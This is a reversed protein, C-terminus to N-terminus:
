RRLPRRRRQRLRRCSIMKPLLAAPPAPAPAPLAGVLEDREGELVAIQHQVERAEDFKFASMALDHRAALGILEREVAALRLRKAELEAPPIEGAPLSFGNQAGMIARYVDFIKLIDTAQIRNPCAM